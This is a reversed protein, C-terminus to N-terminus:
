PQPGSYGRDAANCARHNSTVMHARLTAILPVARRHECSSVALYLMSQLSLVFGMHPECETSKLVSMQRHRAGEWVRPPPPKASRPRKCGKQGLQGAQVM